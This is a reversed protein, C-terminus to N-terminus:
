EFCPFAGSFTTLKQFIYFDRLKPWFSVGIDIEWSPISWLYVFFLRQIFTKTWKGGPLYTGWEVGWNSGGLCSGQGRVIFFDQQEWCTTGNGGRVPCCSSIVVKEFSERQLLVVHQSIAILNNWCTTRNLPPYHSLMSLFQLLIIECTTIPCCASFNCYSQKLM